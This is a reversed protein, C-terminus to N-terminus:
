PKKLETREWMYKELIQAEKELLAYSGENVIQCQLHNIQKRWKKCAAYFEGEIKSQTEIENPDNKESPSPVGSGTKKSM